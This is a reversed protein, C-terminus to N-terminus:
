VTQEMRLPLEPMALPYDPQGSDRLLAGPNLIMVMVEGHMFVGSWWGPRGTLSEPTRDAYDATDIIDDIFEALIVYRREDIEMVIFKHHPRVGIRANGLLLGVDVLPLIEGRLSLLGATTPSLGPADMIEFAPVVERIAEVPLGFVREGIRFLLAPKSTSEIM